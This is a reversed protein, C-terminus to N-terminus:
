RACREKWLRRNDASFGLLVNPNRRAIEMMIERVKGEDKPGFPVSHVRGDATAVMLFRGSVIFYTRVVREYCWLVDGWAAALGARKGFLFRNTMRLRDRGYIAATPSNLEAAATELAGTSELRELAKKVAAAGPLNALLVCGGFIACLVAFAFFMSADEGGPTTGGSICCKGFTSDFRSSSLDFIDRISNKMEDTMQRTMGCIRVPVADKVTENWYAQQHELERVLDATLSGVYLNGEEDQLIYYRTSEYSYVWNSVGVVDLYAYRGTAGNRSDFAVPNPVAKGRATIGLGALLVAGLVLALGIVRGVGSLNGIYRRLIKKEDM